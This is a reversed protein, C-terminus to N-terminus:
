IRQLASLVVQAEVFAPLCLCPSLRTEQNQGKVIRGYGSIGSRTPSGLCLHRAKNQSALFSKYLHKRRTHRPGERILRRPHPGRYKSWALVLALLGRGALAKDMHPLHFPIFLLMSQGASAGEKLQGRSVGDTGQAKMREGWVHSVLISAGERM